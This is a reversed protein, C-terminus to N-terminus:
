KATIALTLGPEVRLLEGKLALISLHSNLWLKIANVQEVKAVLVLAESDLVDTRSALGVRIGSAASDQEAFARRMRSTAARLADAAASMMGVAGILDSKIRNEVILLEARTKQLNAQAQRIQAAISGGQYLPITIQFGSVTTKTERGLVSAIANSEDVYSAVFDVTPLHDSKIKKVEWEAVEIAKRLAMVEPNGTINLDKFKSLDTITIVQNWWSFDLEKPQNNEGTVQIFQEKIMELNKRSVSVDFIARDLDSQVRLVDLNSALKGAQMAKTQSLKESIARVLAERGKLESELYIWQLYIDVVRLITQYKIFELRAVAQETARTTQIYTAWNRMRILPQRLLVSSQNLSYQASTWNGASQNVLNRSKTDASPYDNYTVSLAPLLTGLSSRELERAADLSAIYVSHNPDKQLARTIAEDISISNIVTQAQSNTFFTYLLCALAMQAASKLIYTRFNLRRYRSYSPLLERAV